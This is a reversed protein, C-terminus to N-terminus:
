RPPFHGSQCDECYYYPREIVLEGSRSRVHKDKRGKPRMISGCDPCSADPHKPTRQTNALAQTLEQSLEERIKLAAEEIQTLHLDENPDLEEFLKELRSEYKSLLDAKLQNKDIRM